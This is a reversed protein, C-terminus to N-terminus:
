LGILTSTMSIHEMDRVEKTIFNNLIDLNDAEVKTIIDFDGYVMHSEKVINERARLKELVEREKGNKTTIFIFATVM